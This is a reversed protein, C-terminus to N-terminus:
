LPKIRVTARHHTPDLTIETIMWPLLLGATTRAASHTVSSFTKTAGGFADTASGRDGGEGEVRILQDGDDAEMLRVRYQRPGASAPYMPLAEDVHYVLVGTAPPMQDVSSRERYEVLFYETATVPIRLVTGGTAPSHLTYVSDRDVPVLTPDSWGVRVRTWAGLASMDYGGQPPAGRGCGWGSGAAMLDWCGVVWRRGEWVQSGGGVGHYLDPLGLLLHGLEHTLVNAGIDSGCSLVGMAVYGGIEIGRAATDKSTRHEDATRFRVGNKDRWASFAHPHLGTAGPIGCHTNRNANLVVIGGDVIGDDDGSNPFGDPGDNDYRGFDVLADVARIAELVYDGERSPANIGPAGLETSTVNTPVWDTVEGILTFRNGSALAFAAATPGGGPGGFFGNRIAAGSMPEPESNAFKAPIVLVRSTGFVRM